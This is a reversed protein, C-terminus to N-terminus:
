KTLKEDWALVQEIFPAVDNQPIPHLTGDSGREQSRLAAEGGPARLRACGRGVRGGTM